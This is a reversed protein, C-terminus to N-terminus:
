LITFEGNDCEMFRSECFTSYIKGVKEKCLEVAKNQVDESNDLVFKLDGVRSHYYRNSCTFTFTTKINYVIDIENRLSELSDKLKDLVCQDTYVHTSAGLAGTRFNYKTCNSITSVIESTSKLNLANLYTASSSSMLDICNSM